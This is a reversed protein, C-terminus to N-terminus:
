LLIIAFDGFMTLFASDPACARTDIVFMEQRRAGETYFSHDLKYLSPM